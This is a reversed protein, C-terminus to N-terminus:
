KAGKTTGIYRHYKLQLQIFERHFFRYSQGLRCPCTQVSVESQHEVANPCNAKHYNTLAALAADHHDIHQKTLDGKAM